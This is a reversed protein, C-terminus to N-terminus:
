LLWNINFGKQLRRFQGGESKARANQSPICYRRTFTCMLLPVLADVDQLFDTFIPGTTKANFHTTVVASARLVICSPRATALM